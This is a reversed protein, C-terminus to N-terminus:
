EIKGYLKDVENHNLGKTEKVTFYFFIESILTLIAFVIFSGSMGISDLM